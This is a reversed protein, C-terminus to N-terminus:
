WLGFIAHLAVVLLVADILGFVILPGQTDIYQDEKLFSKAAIGYCVMLM